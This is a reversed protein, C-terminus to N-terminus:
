VASREQPLTAPRAQPTMLKRGEETLLYVKRPRGFRAQRAINKGVAYGRSTLTQLHKRATGWSFGVEKAMTRCKMGDTGNAAIAQLLIFPSLALGQHRARQWCEISALHIIAPNIM